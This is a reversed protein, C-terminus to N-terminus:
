SLNRRMGPFHRAACEPCIGHSFLVEANKEIYQEMLDGRRQRQAQTPTQIQHPLNGTREVDRNDFLTRLPTVKM